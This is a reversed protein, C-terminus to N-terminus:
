PSLNSALVLGFVVTLYLFALSFLWHAADFFAGQPASGRDYYVFQIVLRAGWYALVYGAVAAALPSGDVLLGPAFTSLGALALNTGLIYGGHAM